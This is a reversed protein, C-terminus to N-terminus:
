VYIDYIYLYIYIHFYVCIDYVYIMDTHLSIDLHTPFVKYVSNSVSYMYIFLSILLVYIYTHHIM